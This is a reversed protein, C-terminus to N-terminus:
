SGVVFVGVVESPFLSFVGMLSFCFFFVWFFFSFEVYRSGIGGFLIELRIREEEGGGKEKGGRGEGGGKVFWFGFYVM